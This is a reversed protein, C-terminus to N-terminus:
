IIAIILNRKINRNYVYLDKFYINKETEKLFKIGEM